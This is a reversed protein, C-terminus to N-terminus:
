DGESLDRTAQQEPKGHFVMVALAAIVFRTLANRILKM